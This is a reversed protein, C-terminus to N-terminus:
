SLRVPVRGAAPLEGFLAMAAGRQAAPSDSWACLFSSAPIQNAFYPNGFSVATARRGGAIKGCYKELEEHLGVRGKWARVRAYVAIVLADGKPVEPLPEGPKASAFEVPARERLAALFPDPGAAFDDDRLILVSLKRGKEFIAGEGKRAWALADFAIQEAARAHYEHAPISEMAEPSITREDFLRRRDKLALVRELAEHVRSEPIKGSEVAELCDALAAMPDEPYLLVDAGAALALAAPSGFTSLAGMMLADTVILGKFGIEERLVRMTAPSLSAPLKPDLAPLTIHGVMVSDVGAKAAAVFPPLAERDLRARDHDVTPLVVHSDLPTAGHGPFHKACASVGASQMGRSFAVGLKSVLAPSDSFARTNIIPNRPETNVDMVPAFVWHIGFTKAELATVKGAFNAHVESGTAGIAMPPPLDTAGQVQQGAGRELDATVLLPLKSFRQLTNIQMPTEYISGGFVILGGFEGDDLLQRVTDFEAGERPRSPSGSAAIFILQAIKQRLSLGTPKPPPM